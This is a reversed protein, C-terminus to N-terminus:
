HRDEKLLYHSDLPTAMDLFTTPTPLNWEGNSSCFLSLALTNKDVVDVVLVLLNKQRIKCNTSQWRLECDQTTTHTHTHTHTVIVSVQERNTPASACTARCAEPFSRWTTTSRHAISFRSAVSRFRRCSSVAVEAARRSIVPPTWRCLRRSVLCAMAVTSAKFLPVVIVASYLAARV